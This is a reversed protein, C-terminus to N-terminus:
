QNSQKETKLTVFPTPVMSVVKSGESLTPAVVLSNGMEGKSVLM